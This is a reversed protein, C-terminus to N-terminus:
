VARWTEGYFGRDCPTVRCAPLAYREALFAELRAVYAPDRKKKSFM